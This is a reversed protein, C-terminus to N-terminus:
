MSVNSVIFSMALVICYYAGYVWRALSSISTSLLAICSLSSAMIFTDLLIGTIFLLIWVCCCSPWAWTPLTRCRWLGHSGIMCVNERFLFVLFGDVGRFQISFLQLCPIILTFYEWVVCVSSVDWCHLKETHSSVPSNWSILWKQLM